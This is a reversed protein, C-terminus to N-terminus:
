SGIYQAYLARARAADRAGKVIARGDAFVAISAEATEFRLLYENARVVVVAALRLALAALDLRAASTPRVQVADRGCLLEAPATLREAFDYRGERCAPCSPARGSLNFVDFTGKWLDIGVIGPLLAGTQGALIKLAEAAQIGAVVRAIPAIVGVTDCTPSSGPAPLDEIVCRLCPSVRPRIALALGYAGVCAGYIWPIGAALCVDNVLFRTEFNDTGDLVVDAGKILAAANNAELDAVVGTVSVDPNLRRLHREAAVAKPLAEDADAQDFLAQRQLNSEEVFDRDVVTLAGVGARAMMESLSTGLAGCGIVVVRSGRLRRQGEAGIGSFLEQRSYRSM